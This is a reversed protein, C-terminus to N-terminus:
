KMVKIHNVSKRSSYKFWNFLANKLLNTLKSKAVNIGLKYNISLNTEYKYTNWAESTLKLSKILKLNKLKLSNQSVKRIKKFINRIM